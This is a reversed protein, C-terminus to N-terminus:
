TLTTLLALLANGAMLWATYGGIHGSHLRATAAHAARRAPRPLPPPTRLATAAALVLTTLAGTLGAATWPHPAAAYAGAAPAPDGDLILTTHAHHDTFVAFSLLALVLATDLHAPRAYAAPLLMLALTV